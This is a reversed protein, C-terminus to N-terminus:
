ATAIFIEVDVAATNAEAKILDLTAFGTGTNVQDDTLVFSEGAKVRQYYDGGNDLAIDVYNTSDLNTVRFHKLTNDRITGLGPNGATLELITVSATPITIITQYVNEVGTIDNTITNGYAKGNLTLTETLTTKLTAM